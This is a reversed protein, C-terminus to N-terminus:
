NGPNEHTQLEYDETAGVGKDTSNIKKNQLEVGLVKEDKIKQSATDNTQASAEFIDGLKGTTGSEKKEVQEILKTMLAGSEPFASKEKEFYAKAGRNDGQKFLLFGYEAYAGPPV